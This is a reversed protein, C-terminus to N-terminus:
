AVHDSKSAPWLELTDEWSVLVDAKILRLLEDQIALKDRALPVIAETIDKQSQLDPMGDDSVPVDVRVARVMGITVRTYDPSGDPRFRGVAVSELVPTLAHEFYPLYLRDSVSPLPKLIGAHSNASFEGTRAYVPGAYGDAAWTLYDGDFDARAIHGATENRFSSGTYVPVIGPNELIYKRTLSGDGKSVSFLEPVSFSKMAKATPAHVVRKKELEGLASILGTKLAGIAKYRSAVERQFEIDLTGDELVPAYFEVASASKSAIKTYDSEGSEKRRGTAAERLAITLLPAFFSLCVLGAHNPAPQLLGVDRTASFKGSREFVFGAYGNTTWTLYSGDYEYTSIRGHVALPDTSASYVPYIGPNESYYRKIYKSNGRLIDFVDNLKFRRKYTRPM